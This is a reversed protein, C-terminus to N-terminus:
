AQALKGLALAAPPPAAAPAAATQDASSPPAIESRALDKKTETAQEEKAAPLGRAQKGNSEPEPAKADVAPRQIDTAQQPPADSDRPVAVWLGVAAAAAALPVLWALWRRPAPE